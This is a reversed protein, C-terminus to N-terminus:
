SRDRSVGTTWDTVVSSYVAAPIRARAASGRGTGEIARAALWSLVQAQLFASAAGVRARTTPPLGLVLPEPFAKALPSGQDATVPLVFCGSKQAERAAQLTSHTAGSQSMVVCVDAPRLMSACLTQVVSDAPYDVPFGLLTLDFRLATLASTSSGGGVLLIREADRLRATIVDFLTDDANDVDSRLTTFLHELHDLLDGRVGGSRRNADSTAAAAGTDRTVLMRVHQFGKFGLSQCARIVTASSVGCAEGLEAASLNVSTTPDALIREVVRREAPNLSSLGAQM